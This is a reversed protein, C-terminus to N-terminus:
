TMRDTTELPTFPYRRTDSAIIHSHIDIVSM